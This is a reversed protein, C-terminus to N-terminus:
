TLEEQQVYITLIIKGLRIEDHHTLIASQNSEIKKGNLFTGNRSGLDVLELQDGKRRIAAHKRSIGMQYGGFSTLDIEPTFALMPDKRGIVAELAFMVELPDAWGQVEIRLHVKDGKIPPAKDIMMESTPHSEFYRKIAEEAEARVDHTTNQNDTEPESTPHTSNPQGLPNKFDDM